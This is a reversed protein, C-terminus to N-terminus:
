ELHFLGKANEYLTRAIDERSAETHEVKYVNALPYFLPAHSGFLLRDPSCLRLTDLLPDESEVFSLDIYLNDPLAAEKRKVQAVEHAYAGFAVMRLGPHRKALAVIDVFPVPAVQAIPNQAREDQARVHVGLALGARTLAETFEDVVSEDLRFQHYSPLLRVLPVGWEKRCVALSHTVNPLTPNLVASPIFFPSAALEPLRRENANQPDPFLYAELPYACAGQIGSASLLKELDAADNAPTPYFPWHGCGANVDFSKM